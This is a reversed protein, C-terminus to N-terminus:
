HAAAQTGKSDIHAENPVHSHARSGSARAIAESLDLPEPFSQNLEKSCGYSPPRVPQIFGTTKGSDIYHSGHSRLLKARSRLLGDWSRLLQDSSRLLQASSRLLKHTRSFTTFVMTKLDSLKLCFKQSTKGSKQSTQGLKESTQDLKQSTQDLKESPRPRSRLLKTPARQGDRCLPACLM